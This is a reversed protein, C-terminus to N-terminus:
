STYGFSLRFVLAQNVISLSFTCFESFSSFFIGPKKDQHVQTRMFQPLIGRRSLKRRRRHSHKELLQDLLDSSHASSEVRLSAVYHVMHSTPPPLDTASPAAVGEGKASTKLKKM